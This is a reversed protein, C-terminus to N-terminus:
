KNPPNGVTSRNEKVYEISVKPLNTSNEAYLNDDSLIIRRSNMSNFASAISSKGFGNPAVLLSPKNPIINLNFRKQQIGKINEIEISKIM